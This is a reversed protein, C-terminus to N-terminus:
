ADAPMLSPRVGSVNDALRPAPAADPLDGTHINYVSLLRKDPMLFYLIVALGGNIPAIGFERLCHICLIRRFCGQEHHYLGGVIFRTHNCNPCFGHRLTDTDSRSIAQFAARGDRPNRTNNRVPLDALKSM